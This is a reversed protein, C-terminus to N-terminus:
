TAVDDKAREAEVEARAAEMEARERLYDQTTRTRPRPPGALPNDTVEFQVVVRCDDCMRIRDIASSDPYM